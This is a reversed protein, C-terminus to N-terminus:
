KLFERIDLNYKISNVKHIGILYLCYSSVSSGRGVGWLIDNKRMTDVFYVLFKLVEYMNRQKFLDLEQKVREIEQQTKCKNLLHEEIDLQKYEDPMFWTSKRKDHNIEIKEFAVPDFDFIKSWSNFEKIEESEKAFYNDNDFHDAYLTEIIGSGSLQVTGDSFITRNDLKNKNNM